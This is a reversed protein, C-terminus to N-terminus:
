VHARGIEIGDLEVAEFLKSDAFTDSQGSPVPNGNADKYLSGSVVGRRSERIYEAFEPGSFLKIKDLADTVGVYNDYSVTTKGKEAGRKTSILVVGNAGRAGYIATATADKLIELSSVDNPNLDEYGASLPIGDVVYLPDNGANFSRRGRILIKPVSGPKSGSQSM